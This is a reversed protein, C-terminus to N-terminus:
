KKIEVDESIVKTSANFDHINMYTEGESVYVIKGAFQNPMESYHGYQYIFLYPDDPQHLAFIPSIKKKEEYSKMRYIKGTRLDRKIPQFSIAQRGAGSFYRVSAIGSPDLEDDSDLSVVTVFKPLGKVKSFETYDIFYKRAKTGERRKWKATFVKIRPDLGEIQKRHHEEAWVYIDFDQDTQKLLSALAFQQYMGLRLEFRTDGLDYHLRTVVAIRNVRDNKM